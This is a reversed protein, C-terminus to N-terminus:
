KGEINRLSSISNLQLSAKRSLATIHDDFKLKNEITMGLLKGSISKESAM